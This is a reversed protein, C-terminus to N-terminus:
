TVKGIRHNVVGGRTALCREVVAEYASEGATIGRLPQGERSACLNACAIPAKLQQAYFDLFVGSGEAIDRMIGPSFMGVSTLLPYPAAAYLKGLPTTGVDLKGIHEQARGIRLCMDICFELHVNRRHFVTMSNNVRRSLAPTGDPQPTVWLERTFAFGAPIELELHEPAFMLMDADVWATREFGEKLLERAVVLRALDTVPCLHQAKARFWAPAREFLSDDIFRYEYGQQAAWARVSDMCASIWAPVDHTRYSQYVVTGAAM